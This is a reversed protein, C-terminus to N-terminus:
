GTTWHSTVNDAPDGNSALKVRVARSKKEVRGGGM